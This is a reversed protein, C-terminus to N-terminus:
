SVCMARVQWGLGRQAVAAPCGEGLALMRIRWDPAVQEPALTTLTAYGHGPSFHVGFRELPFGLGLGVGKLVAEKAVWHRFFAARAGADGASQVAALESGFFYSGAIGLADVNDREREVDAGLADGAGVALLIRGHSHSLNFSLGRVSPKGSAGFTFQLALPDSDLYRGLLARTMGHSVTYERQNADFRFRALRVREEASLLSVCRARTVEDVVDDVAWVQVEGPQLALKSPQDLLLGVDSLPVAVAADPEPGV